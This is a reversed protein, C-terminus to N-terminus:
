NAKEHSWNCPETTGGEHAHSQKIPEARSSLPLPMARIHLRCMGGGGGTGRAGRTLAVECTHIDERVLEPHMVPGCTPDGANTGSCRNSLPSRPLGQRLLHPEVDEEAESIPIGYSGRMKM